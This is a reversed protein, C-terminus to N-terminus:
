DPRSWDSIGLEALNILFGVVMASYLNRLLGRNVASSLLLVVHGTGAGRNTPGIQSRYVFSNALQSHPFLDRLVCVSSCPKAFPKKDARPRDWRLKTTKTQNPQHPVDISSLQNTITNTLQPYIPMKVNSQPISLYYWNYKLCLWPWKNYELCQNNKISKNSIFVYEIYKPNLILTISWNSLIFNYDTVKKNKNQDEIFINPAM